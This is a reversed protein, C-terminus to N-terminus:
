GNQGLLNYKTLLLMVSMSNENTVAGLNKVYKDAWKSKGLWAVFVGWLHVWKIVQYGERPELVCLYVKKQQATMTLM